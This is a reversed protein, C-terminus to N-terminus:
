KLRKILTPMGQNKLHRQAANARDRGVLPGAQALYKRGGTTGKVVRGAYGLAVVQQKVKEADAQKSFAGVQVVYRVTDTTNTVSAPSNDTTQNQSQNKVPITRVTQMTRAAAAQAGAGGDIETKRKKLEDYFSYKPKEGNQQVPQQSVMPTRENGLFNFQGGVALLVGALTLLLAISGSIKVVRYNNTM